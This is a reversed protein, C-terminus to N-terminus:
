EPKTSSYDSPNSSNWSQGSQTSGIIAMVTPGWINYSKYAMRAAAIAAVSTFAFMVPRHKAFRGIRVFVHNAAPPRLTTALREFQAAATGTYHALADENASHLDKSAKRLVSAVNDLRNAVTVKQENMKSEVKHRTDVALRSAGAKAQETTSRVAQETQDRMEMALAQAAEQLKEAHAVIEDTNLMSMPNQAKKM